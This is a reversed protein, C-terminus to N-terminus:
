NPRFVMQDGAIEVTDIQALWSQGLLSTELGEPIIVAQVDRQVIGGIELESLMAPVGYVTGSAGTGIPRIERDDWQYGVAAADEGTLAVVSAGTDVVMYVPTGDVYTEAYFHGDAERTLVMEGSNWNSSGSKANGFLMGGDDSSSASFVGTDSTEGRPVVILAFVCVGGAFLITKKLM